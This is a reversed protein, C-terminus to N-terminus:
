EEEKLIQQDLLKELEEGTLPGLLTKGSDDIWKFLLDKNSSQGTQSILVGNVEKDGRILKIRKGHLTVPAHIVPGTTKKNEAM